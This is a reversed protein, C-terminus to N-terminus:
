RARIPFTHPLVPATGQQVTSQPALVLKPLRFLIGLLLWLYANMVFDEYIVITAFTIPLLLLFAYWFIAFSIPFLPSGKLKKVVKWAAFLIAFSMLLWLMLGGIGLEIVLSGFGSEVGLGTPPEHFIKAIYQVGLSSTGIGYGYPWEPYDFAMLFNRVPYDWTRTQLESHKAGPMLTESYIALRSMLADPFIFFLTVLALTVALAARQITRFARLFERQRRPAGWIFAAAIVILSGASWMFPGRSAGMIIGAYVVAITIFALNRGARHRLLLYGTFGLILLWSILLFNTYRTASVFVSTPRYSILGTIPSVRYLTSLARIEDAPRAPNLFGPGIVSQAIGLLGIVLVLGANIYFFRRLDTESNILAYGVFLLPIYSLFLKVGLIGYLLTAASPNFVQMIALWVFLLLPILFPPRFTEVLKRRLAVMFSIYVVLLLVDKAFFIAMNNGLMKRAFDEFLLWTLFFYVGNRWNKLMAIVFAGGVCILTIYALMIINDNIVYQSFEYAAAVFVVAFFLGALFKRSSQDAYNPALIRM